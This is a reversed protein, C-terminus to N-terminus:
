LNFEREPLSDRVILSGQDHDLLYYTGVGDGALLFLTSKRISSDWLDKVGLWQYDYRTIEVQIRKSHFVSDRIASDAKSLPVQAKLAAGAWLFAILLSFPRKMRHVPFIRFSRKFPSTCKRKAQKGKVLGRM